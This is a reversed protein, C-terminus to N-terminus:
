RATQRQLNFKFLKNIKRAKQLWSLGNLRGATTLYYDLLGLVGLMHGHLYVLMSNSAPEVELVDVVVQQKVQYTSSTYKSVNGAKQLWSWDNLRGATTDYHDLSGVQWAHAM